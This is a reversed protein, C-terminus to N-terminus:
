IVCEDDFEEDIIDV